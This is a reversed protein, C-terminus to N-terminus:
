TLKSPMLRNLIVTKESRFLLVQETTLAKYDVHLPIFNDRCPGQEIVRATQVVVVTLPISILIVITGLIVLFDKQKYPPNIIRRYKRLLEATKM